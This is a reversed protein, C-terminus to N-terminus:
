KTKPKLVVTLETEPQLIKIPGASGEWDRISVGVGQGRPELSTEFRWGEVSYSEGIWVPVRINGNTINEPTRGESRVTGALDLLRVGMIGQDPSDPPASLGGATVLTGDSYQVRLVLVAEKRKEPLVL